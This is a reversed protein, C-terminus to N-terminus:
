RGGRSGASTGLQARGDYARDAFPGDADVFHLFVQLYWDLELRDRWHLVRDGRYVLADGPELVVPVPDNEGLRLWIPWSGRDAGALHVTASHECEVRDRHPYLEQGRAYYRAFSYTPVLPHGTVVSLRKAVAPLLADFGAAGYTRLSGPVQDDSEFTGLERLISAYSALHSVLEQGLLSRVVVHADRDYVSEEGASANM